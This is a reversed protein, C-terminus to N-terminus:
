LRSQASDLTCFIGWPRSRGWPRSGLSPHASCMSTIPWCFHKRRPAKQKSCPVSMTRWVNIEFHSGRSRTRGAPLSSGAPTAGYRGRMAPRRWELESSRATWTMREADFRDLVHKIQAIIEYPAPRSLTAFEDVVDPALPKEIAAALDPALRRLYGLLRDSAPKTRDMDFGYFKVKRENALNWARVWEVIAIMEKNQLIRSIMGAVADAASGKGTLVYDNLVQEDGYMAELGIMSFGLQSVCYEILRHRIQFFERTGHTTEGISVVRAHDIIPRLFEIDQFSSGPETTALPVANAKLWAVVDEGAPANGSFAFPVSAATVAAIAAGSVAVKSSEADSNGRCASVLPKESVGTM